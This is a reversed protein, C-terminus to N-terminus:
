PLLCFNFWMSTYTFPEIVTSVCIFPTLWPFCVPVITTDLIEAVITSLPCVLVYVLKEVWVWAPLTSISNLFFTVFKESEAVIVIEPVIIHSAKFIFVVNLLTNEPSSIAAAINSHGAWLPQSMRIVSFSTALITVCLTINLVSSPPVISPSVM